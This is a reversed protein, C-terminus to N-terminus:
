SYALQEATRGDRDREERRMEFNDLLVEVIDAHGKYAAWHLVNRRNQDDTSYIDAGSLLLKV